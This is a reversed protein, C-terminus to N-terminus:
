SQDRLKRKYVKIFLLFIFSFFLKIHVIYRRVIPVAYVTCCTAGDRAKLLYFCVFKDIVARDSKMNELTFKVSLKSSFPKM